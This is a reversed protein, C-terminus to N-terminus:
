KLNSRRLEVRKHDFEIFHRIVTQLPFTNNRAIVIAKVNQNVVQVLDHQCTLAM